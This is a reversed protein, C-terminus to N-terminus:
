QQERMKTEVKIEVKENVDNSKKAIYVKKESYKCDDFM